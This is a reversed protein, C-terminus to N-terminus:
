TLLGSFASFGEGRWASFLGVTVFGAEGKWPLRPLVLIRRNGLKM